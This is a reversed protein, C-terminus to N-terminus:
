TRCMTKRLGLSSLSESCTLDVVVVGLVVSCKKGKGMTGANKARRLASTASLLSSASMALTQLTTPDMAGARIDRIAKMMGESPSPTIRSGQTSELNNAKAAIDTDYTVEILDTTPRKFLADLIQIYGESHTNTLLQM